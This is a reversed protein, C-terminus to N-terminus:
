KRADQMLLVKTLSNVADDVARAERDSMAGLFSHELADGVQKRAVRNMEWFRPHEMDKATIQM